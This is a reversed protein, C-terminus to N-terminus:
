VYYHRYCSSIDRHSRLSRGSMELIFKDRHVPSDTAQM